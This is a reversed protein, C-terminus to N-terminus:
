SPRRQTATTKLPILDEPHRTSAQAHAYTWEAVQGAVSLAVREPEKGSIAKLGVPCQIDDIMAEAFGMQKLRSRFRAWKTASGILGIKHYYQQQQQQQVYSLHLQTLLFQVVRLKVGKLIEIGFPPLLKDLVIYDVYFKNVTQFVLHFQNFKCQSHCIIGFNVICIHEILDAHPIVNDVIVQLFPVNNDRRLNPRVFVFLICTSIDLFRNRSLIIPHNTKVEITEVRVKNHLVIDRWLSEQVLSM